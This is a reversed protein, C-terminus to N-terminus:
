FFGSLGVASGSLEDLNTSLPEFLQRFVRNCPYNKAGNDQSSWGKSEKLIELIVEERLLILLDLFFESSMGLILQAEIVM